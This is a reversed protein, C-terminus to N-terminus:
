KVAEEEDKAKGYEAYLWADVENYEAALKRDTCSGNKIARKTYKLAERQVVAHATWLIESRKM